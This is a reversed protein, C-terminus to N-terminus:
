MRRSTIVVSITSDLWKAPYNIWLTTRSNVGNHRIECSIYFQGKLDTLNYAELDNKYSLLFWINNCEKVTKAEM